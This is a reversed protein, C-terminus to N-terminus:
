EAAQDHQEHQQAAPEPDIVAAPVIAAGPKVKLLDDLVFGSSRDGAPIFDGSLTRTGLPTLYAEILDGEKLDKVKALKEEGAVFLRIRLGPNIQVSLMCYPSGDSSGAPDGPTVSLIKADQIGAAAEMTVRSVGGIVSVVRKNLNRILLGM